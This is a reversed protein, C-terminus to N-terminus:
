KGIAKEKTIPETMYVGGGCNVVQDGNCVIMTKKGARAKHTFESMFGQIMGKKYDGNLSLTKGDVSLEITPEPYEDKHHAELWNKGPLCDHFVTKYDTVVTDWEPHKGKIEYEAIHHEKHSGIRVEEIFLPPRATQISTQRTIGKQSAVMDKEIKALCDPCATIHATSNGVSVTKTEIIRNEDLKHCLPCTHSKIYAQREAYEKRERELEKEHAKNYREWEAITRGVGYRPLEKGVLLRVRLFDTEKILWALATIIIILTPIM